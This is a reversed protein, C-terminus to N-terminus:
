QVKPCDIAWLLESAALIATRCGGTVESASRNVIASSTVTQGRRWSGIRCNSSTAIASRSDAANRM